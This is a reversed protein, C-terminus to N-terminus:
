NKQKFIEINESILPAEDLSLCPMLLGYIEFNHYTVLIPKERGFFTYEPPGETIPKVAKSINSALIPNFAIHNIKSSKKFDTITKRWDPYEIKKMSNYLKVCVPKNHFYGEVVDSKFYIYDCKTCLQKWDLYHIGKKNAFAIEKDDILSETFRTVLMINGNTAVIWGDDIYVYQLAEPLDQGCIYDMRPFQTHNYKSM